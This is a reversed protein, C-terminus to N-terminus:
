INVVFCQFEGCFGLEGSKGEMQNAAMTAHQNQKIAGTQQNHHNNNNNHHSRHHSHPHHIHNHHHNQHLDSQQVHHHHDYALLPSWTGMLEEVADVEVEGTSNDCDQKNTETAGSSQSCSSSRSDGTLTRSRKAAGRPTKRMMRVPCVRMAYTVGCELNEM